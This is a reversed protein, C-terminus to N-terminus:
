WQNWPMKALMKAMGCSDTIGAYILGLGIFGALGAWSPSITIALVSAVAVLSGAVMRVQRELSVAKKGRVVPLGAAACTETGGEISVVNSFGLAEAQQCAKLSTKGKQCIFYVPTDGNGGAVQRIEDASLRRFPINTAGDVHVERFEAPRRVDILALQPQCALLEEFERPTITQISM